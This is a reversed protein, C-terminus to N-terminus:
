VSRAQQAAPRVEKAAGTALSPSGIIQEYTGQEVIEGRELRYILDCGKLTTLRHAIMLVTLDRGLRDIGEIISAETADDLASTAEDLILVTSRKYLARAVGIRQRQGGSLRIGREGVVTQYGEPQEEIFAAIDAKRAAERVREEDIERQPLGFAINEMITGDSLFIHQPVHAIQVQWSPVNTGGLRQDDILVAGSSPELLGMVLDILTSKGSGTKGIFGIRAGKPIRIDVQHLALAGDASYRFSLKDLTIAEEFPMPVIHRRADLDSPLPLKLLEMMDEFFAHSGRLQTWGAYIQQLLPLLRQAGLALAALVPLSATLGGQQGSLIVALIAILVMGLGEIAFRPLTGIMANTAQAQRMSNDIVAFKAVHLPQSQDILVDRIGAFGEQLSKYHLPQSQTLLRSNRELRRRTALSVALYALGFALAAGIAVSASIAVLVALIFASIVAATMITVLPWLIQNVIINARHVGVVGFSSNTNVHFMYPQYLLKKYLLISLDYGIRLVYSKSVWTLIIRLIAAGVAVLSFLIAIAVIAEARTEAGILSLLERLLPIRDAGAPDTILALFPMIAGITLLEAFAGLLMLLLLALGQARRRRPLYDLLQRLGRWFRFPEENMATVMAVSHASGIENSNGPLALAALPRDGQHDASGQM